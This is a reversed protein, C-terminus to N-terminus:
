DFGACGGCDEGITTYAYYALNCSNCGYSGSASFDGHNDCHKREGRNDVEIIHWEPLGDDLDPNHHCLLVPNKAEASVSTLSQTDAATPTSNSGTGPSCSFAVVLVLALGLSLLMKKM